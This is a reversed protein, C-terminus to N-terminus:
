EGLFIKNELPDTYSLVNLKNVFLRIDVINIYIFTHRILSSVWLLPYSFCIHLNKYDVLANIAYVSPTSMM